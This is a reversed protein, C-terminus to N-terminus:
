GTAYSLVVMGTHAAAQGLDVGTGSLGLMHVSAALFFQFTLERTARRPAALAPDQGPDCRPRGRRGQAETSM